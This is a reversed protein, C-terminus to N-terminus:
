KITLYLGYVGGAEQESMQCYDEFYILVDNWNCDISFSSGSLDIPKICWQKSEIPGGLHIGGYSTGNWVILKDNLLVYMNDNLYIGNIEGTKCEEETADGSLWFKKRGFAASNYFFKVDTIMGFCHGCRCCLSGGNKSINWTYPPDSLYWSESKALNIVYNELGNPNNLFCGHYEDSCNTYDIVLCNTNENNQTRNWDIFVPQRLNVKIMDNFTSFGSSIKIKKNGPVLCCGIDIKSIQNSAISMPLFKVYQDTTNSKRICLPVDDLYIIITDNFNNTGINKLYVVDQNYYDIILPSSIRSEFKKESEEIIKMM